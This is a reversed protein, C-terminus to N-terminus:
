EEFERSLVEHVKERDGKFKKLLQDRKAKHEPNSIDFKVKRSKGSPPQFLSAIQEDDEELKRSFINMLGDIAGYIESDQSTPDTIIKKYEEFEKQNRIPVGAAVMPILSRGLSEFEASDRAVDSSFYKTIGSGRGIKGRDVISKMLNLTDVAFSFNQKDEVKKKMTNQILSKRIDPDSVGSLDLGFRKLAENEEQTRVQRAFNESSSQIGAALGAGIGSGLQDMFSSQSQAM